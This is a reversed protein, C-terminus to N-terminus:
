LYFREKIAKIIKPNSELKLLSKIKDQTISTIEKTQLMRNLTGSIFFCTEPSYLKNNPNILDKDLQKDAWDQKIM